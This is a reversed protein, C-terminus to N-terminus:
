QFIIVTNIVTRLIQSTINIYSTWPGDSYFYATPTYCLVFVIFLIWLQVMIHSRQQSYASQKSNKRFLKSDVRSLLSLV